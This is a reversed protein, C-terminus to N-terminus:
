KAEQAVDHIVIVDVIHIQERTRVKVLRGDPLHAKQVQDGHTSYSEEAHSLIYEVQGRTIGATQMRRSALERIKLGM